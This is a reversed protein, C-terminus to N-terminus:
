TSPAAIIFYGQKGEPPQDTFKASNLEPYSHLETVISKGVPDVHPKFHLDNAKLFFIQSRTKTDMNMVIKRYQGLEADGDKYGCSVMAM